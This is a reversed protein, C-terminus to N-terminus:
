GNLRLLLFVQGSRASRASRAQAGDTAVGHWGGVHRAIPVHVSFDKSLDLESDDQLCLM